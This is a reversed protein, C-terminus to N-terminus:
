IGQGQRQTIIIIDDLCVARFKSLLRVKTQIEEFKYFTQSEVSTCTLPWSKKDTIDLDSKILRWIRLGFSQNLSCGDSVDAEKHNARLRSRERDRPRGRWELLRSREEPTGAM